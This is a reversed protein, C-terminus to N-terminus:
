THEYWARRHWFKIHARDLDHNGPVLYLREKAIGTAARLRECFVEAVAFHERKGSRALDGTILVFDLPGGPMVQEGVAQVRSSTVLDQEFAEAPRGAGAGLHLDSLHLWRLKV